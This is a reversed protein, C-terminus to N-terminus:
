KYENGANIEGILQNTSQCTEKCMRISKKTRKMRFTIAKITTDLAKAKETLELLKREHETM